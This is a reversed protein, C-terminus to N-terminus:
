RQNHLSDPRDMGANQWIMEFLPHLCEAPSVAYSDIWAEHVINNKVISGAMGRRVFISFGMVNDLGAVLRLPVSLQLRTRAFDLFDSLARIFVEEIAISPVGPQGNTRHSLIEKEIAWIEGNEFLQVFKSTNTQGISDAEFAVAGFENAEFWSGGSRGFLPLGFPPSYILDLASKPSLPGIKTSPILRLFAQAENTWTVDSAKSVDGYPILRALLDNSNLFSSVTEVCPNHSKTDLVHGHMDVEQIDSTDQGIASFIQDALSDIDDGFQTTVVDAMLPYTQAFSDHSINLLVPLIVKKGSNTSRSIMSRLESEPWPKAIFRESILVIGYESNRLGEDIKASLRDGLTIQGKDWWVRLGRAELVGVLNKVEYQNESAYSIFIDFEHTLTEEDSNAMPGGVMTALQARSPAKKSMHNATPQDLSKEAELYGSPLLKMNGRLVGDVHKQEHLIILAKDVWDFNTCLDELLSDKSVRKSGASHKEALIRLIEFRLRRLEDITNIKSTTAFDAEPSRSHLQIDQFTTESLDCELLKLIKTNGANRVFIEFDGMLNSTRSTSQASRSVSLALKAGIELEGTSSERFAKFIRGNKDGYDRDFEKSVLYYCNGDSGAACQHFEYGLKQLRTQISIKM